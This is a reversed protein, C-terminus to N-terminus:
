RSPLRRTMVGIFQEDRVFGFERSDWSTDPNDGLRSYFFERRHIQEIDWQMTARRRTLLLEAVLAPIAALLVLLLVLATMAPSLILLSGVFGILSLVGNLSGCIGSVLDGTSGAGEQALRLRDLFVPDEFRRLGVQREAAAFLRDIAEARALRGTQARLYRGIGPLAAASLAEVAASALDRIGAQRSGPDSM